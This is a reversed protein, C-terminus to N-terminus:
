KVETFLGGQRAPLVVPRSPRDGEAVSLTVDGRGAAELARRAAGLALTRTNNQKSLHALVVSRLTTGAVRGLVAAAADNSLHGLRGSVRQKLQWPYPGDRLMRDDHNSELMLIECGRLRELVLTTAHGMDTVIGIRTRGGELAFGVPRAADHPVPFPDIRVTGLEFVRGPELPIFGGLHVKSVGMAALTAPDCCVPVGHRKSFREAGRAHDQHEHSLLVADLEAPATGVAQLRRGLARASLGADVLLRTGDLEVLTANGQSGSGLPVIRTAL